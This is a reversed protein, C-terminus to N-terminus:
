GKHALDMAELKPKRIKNRVLLTGPGPIVEDTWIMMPERYPRFYNEEESDRWIRESKAM